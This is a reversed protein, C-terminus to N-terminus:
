VPAVYTGDMLEYGFKGTGANYFTQKSITDYMCPHESTDLAPIFNNITDGNPNYFSANKIANRTGNPFVGGPVKFLYMQSLLDSSNSNITGVANGDFYVTSQKYCYQHWEGVSSTFEKIYKTVRNAFLCVMDMGTYTFLCISLAPESSTKRNASGIISSNPAFYFRGDYLFGCDETLHVGTTIYQKGSSELYKCRVYGNPLKPLEGIQSQIIRRRSM